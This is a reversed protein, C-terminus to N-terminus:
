KPRPTGPPFSLDPNAGVRRHYANSAQVVDYDFWKMWTDLDVDDSKKYAVELSTKLKGALGQFDAEHVREHKLVPALDAPSLSNDVLLEPKFTLTFRKGDDNTDYSYNFFGAKNQPIKDRSVPTPRALGTIGKMVFIKM